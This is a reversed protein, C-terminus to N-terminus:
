QNDSNLLISAICTLGYKFLSKARRGTNLIRISKVKENLYIGVLYAWTFAIHVLAFLKEIHEIDTLHTKAINFGSTKLAKFDTKIQWHREQTNSNM